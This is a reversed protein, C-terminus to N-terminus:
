FKGFALGLLTVRSSIRLLLLCPLSCLGLGGTIWDVPNSWAAVSPSPLSTSPRRGYLLAHVPFVGPLVCSSSQWSSLRILAPAGVFVVRCLKTNEIGTSEKYTSLKGKSLLFLNRKPHNLPFRIFSM